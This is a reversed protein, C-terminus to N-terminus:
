SNATQQESNATRQRSNATSARVRKLLASLMKKVEEVDAALEAYSEGALYGLDRALIIQYQVESASAAALQLYRAFELESGHGSGEAINSPISVSARRIQNTLGYREEGPFGGTAKYIELVLAHAKQWIVLKRFDRM